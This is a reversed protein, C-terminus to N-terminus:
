TLAYPRLNLPLVYAQAETVKTKNVVLSPFRAERIRLLIPLSRFLPTHVLVSLRCAWYINWM